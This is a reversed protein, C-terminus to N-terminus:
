AEEVQVDVRVGDRIAIIKLINKIANITKGSRGIILGVDEQPVNLKFVVFGNSNEESIECKKGTIGQIMHSLLERM